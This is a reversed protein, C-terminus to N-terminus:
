RANITQQLLKKVSTTPKTTKLLQWLTAQRLTLMAILTKLSRLNVTVNQM